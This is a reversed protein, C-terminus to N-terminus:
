RRNQTLHQGSRAALRDAIIQYSAKSSEV